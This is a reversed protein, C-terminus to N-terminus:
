CVHLSLSLTSPPRLSAYRVGLGIYTYRQQQQQQQCGVEAIREYIIACHVFSRYMACFTRMRQLLAFDAGVTVYM